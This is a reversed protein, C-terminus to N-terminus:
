IRQMLLGLTLVRNRGYLVIKIHRWLSCNIYSLINKGKGASAIHPNTTNKQPCPSLAARTSDPKSFLLTWQCRLCFYIWFLSPSSDINAWYGQHLCSSATDCLWSTTTHTADGQNGVEVTQLLHSWSLEFRGNLGEGFGLLFSSLLAPHLDAHSNGWYVM